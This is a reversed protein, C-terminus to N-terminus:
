PRPHGPRLRRVGHRRLQLVPNGPQEQERERIASFCITLASRVDSLFVSVGVVRLTGTAKNYIAFNIENILDRKYATQPGARGFVGVLVENAAACNM